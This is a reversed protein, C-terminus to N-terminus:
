THHQIAAGTGAPAVGAPHSATASKIVVSSLDIGQKTAEGKPASKASHPRLADKDDAQKRVSKIIDDISAAVKKGIARIDDNPLEAIKAKVEKTLISKCLLEASGELLANKKAILAQIETELQQYSKRQSAM